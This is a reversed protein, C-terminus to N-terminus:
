LPRMTDCVGHLWFKQVLVGSGVCHIRRGLSAKADHRALCGSTSYAARSHQRTSKLRDYRDAPEGTQAVRTRSIRDSLCVRRFCARAIFRTESGVLKSPFRELELPLRQLSRYGSHCPGVAHTEDLGVGRNRDRESTQPAWPRPCPAALDATAMSELYEMPHSPGTPSHRGSAPRWTQPEKM